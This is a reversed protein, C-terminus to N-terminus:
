FTFQETDGTIDLSPTTGFDVHDDAGDFNLCWLGGPLRVWNAGVITGVNGYPSRDYIKSGAGPLGPLCLVCCLQPPNFILDEKDLLTKM